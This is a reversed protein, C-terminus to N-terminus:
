FTQRAIWERLSRISSWIGTRSAIFSTTVCSRRSSAQVTSPGGLRHRTRVDGSLLERGDQLVVARLTARQSADPAAVTSRLHNGTRRDARRLLRICTTSPRRKGAPPGSTTWTEHVLRQVDHPLNGALEVIAHGLHAEPVMGSRKFREDISAAFEDGPIKETCMVPGAKYFPRKPELMREMLSPESGAFVYGVDRQHQVAARMAHEVTGGNFGGIAQFEDLAM